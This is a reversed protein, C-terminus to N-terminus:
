KNDEDLPYIIFSLEQGMIYTNLDNTIKANSKDTPGSTRVSITSPNKFFSNNLNYQGSNSAYFAVEYLNNSLRYPSISTKRTYPTKVGDKYTFM